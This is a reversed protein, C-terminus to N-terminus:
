ACVGSCEAPPALQQDGEDCLVFEVLLAASAVAILYAVLVFVLESKTPM